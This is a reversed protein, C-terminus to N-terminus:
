LRAIAKEIRAILDEAKMRVINGERMRAVKTNKLSPLTDLLKPRSRMINIVEAVEVPSSSSEPFDYDVQRKFGDQWNGLLQDSTLVGVM